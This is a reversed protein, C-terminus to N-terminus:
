SIKAARTVDAYIAEKVQTHSVKGIFPGAGLLKQPTWSPDNQGLADRLRGLSVNKNPGTALKGQENLEL